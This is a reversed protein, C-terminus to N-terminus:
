DLVQKSIQDKSSALSSLLYELNYEIEVQQILAQLYQHFKENKEISGRYKFLFTVSQRSAPKSTITEQVQESSGEKIIKTGSPLTQDISPNLAQSIRKSSKRAKFCLVPKDDVLVKIFLVAVSKGFIQALRVKANM